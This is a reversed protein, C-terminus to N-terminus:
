ITASRLADAYWDRILPALRDRSWRRHPVGGNTVADELANAVNWVVDGEIPAIYGNREALVPPGGLPLCVVPTGISSAEAVAWGAQDHVSPFLLADAGRMADLVESRPRHGHFAVRDSVGLKTALAEVPRREYGAGYFDLRWHPLRAVAAVALRPAKLGILRAVFVARRETGDAADLRPVRPSLDELAANPEVVIRRARRFREAVDRNQVVVVAARRAMGDGWIRRPLWTAVARLLETRTGRAGLWRRLRWLPIRTAGGVPGWVLPVGPAVSRAGCPLWDNAWTVHHVLDFGIDAHLRRARRTFERQWLTYYWYVDRARRARAVVSDALDLYEMHIRKALEPHTQLAADVAPAFRRRAFVWVEHDAAAATVFAWGANAEPEDGPGCAFASILVRPLRIPLEDDGM